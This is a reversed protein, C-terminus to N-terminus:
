GLLRTITVRFSDIHAEMALHAGTADHLRLCNLVATHEAVVEPLHLDLSLSVSWFRIARQHLSALLGALVHNRAAAAIGEHFNQDLALVGELDGARIRTASNVVAELRDLEAQTIREAALAAAYPENIRRVAILEVAENMSLPQVIVGKRPVIRVLGEHMLRHFAHNVPTRGLDFRSCIEAENVYEGPPLRLTVVESRILCYAQENQSLKAPSRAPATTQKAGLGSAVPQWDQHSSSM